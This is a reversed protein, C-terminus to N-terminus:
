LLMLVSVTWHM